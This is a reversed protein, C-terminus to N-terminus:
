ATGVLTYVKWKIKRIEEEYEAAKQHHPDTARKWADWNDHGAQRAQTHLDKSHDYTPMPNNHIHQVWEEALLYAYELLEIAKKLRRAETKARDDVPTESGESGYYHRQDKWEKFNKM